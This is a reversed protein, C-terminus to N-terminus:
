RSQQSDQSVLHVDSSDRSLPDESKKEENPSNSPALQRAAMSRFKFDNDRRFSTPSYLPSANM